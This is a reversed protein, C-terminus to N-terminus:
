TAIAAGVLGLLAAGAAALVGNVVLMVAAIVVLERSRELRTVLFHRLIEAVCACASGLVLIAYPQWVDSYAEGFVYGAAVAVVPVSLGGGVLVVLLSHRLATSLREAVESDPASMISRYTATLLSRSLLLLNLSLAVPISYVGAAGASMVAAVVLVDIRSWLLMTGNAVSVGVSRRLISAGLGLARRMRLSRKRLADSFQVAATVLAGLAWAAILTTVTSDVLVASIGMAVLPFVAMAVTTLSVRLVDGLAQDICMVFSSYTVLVTVAAAFLVAGLAAGSVLGSVFLSVPLLLVALAGAIALSAGQLAAVSHRGYILDAALVPTGGTAMTAIIGVSTTLIAYIGRGATDLVNTTIVATALAAAGSAVRAALNLASLRAIARGSPAEPVAVPVTTSEGASM